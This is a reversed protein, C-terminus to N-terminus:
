GGIRPFVMEHLNQVTALLLVVLGGAAAYLARKGANWNQLYRLHIYLAYFCWLTASFLHRSGWRFTTGWGQYAWIAGTVQAISYSLFGWIILAHYFGDSSAAKRQRWAFWAGAFFLAQAMVESAFFAAAWPTIKKPTPPIIGKPYYAAFASAILLIISLSLWEDRKEANFLNIVILFALSWALFPVPDFVNNVIFAGTLFGRWVQYVTHLAFGIGISVASAISKKVLYALAGLCYLGLAAYLVTHMTFDM